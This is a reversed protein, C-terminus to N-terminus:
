QVTGVLSVGGSMFSASSGGIRLRVM